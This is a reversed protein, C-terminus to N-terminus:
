RWRWEVGVTWGRGPAPEYYRRNGENVIVSGAYVRDGLNDVAVFVRGDHDDGHFGYGASAGFVAYSQAREDDFHNVPVEGVYGGEVRAHWGVRPDGWLLAAIHAAIPRHGLM